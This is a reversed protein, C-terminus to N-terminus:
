DLLSVSNNLHLSTLLLHLLNFIKLYFKFIRLLLNSICVFQFILLRKLHAEQTFKSYKENVQGCKM